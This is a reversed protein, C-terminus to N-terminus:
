AKGFPDPQLGALVGGDVPVAAGHVYSAGEGLLFAAVAAVEAADGDRGLPVPMERTQDGMGPTAYVGELMPTSMNGPVVVNLRVGAAGWEAARSRTAVVIARKVTSYAQTGTGSKAIALAEPEHDALCADLMPPVISGDFYGGISAITLAAPAHGRALAPRLADVLRMSGFYNVAVVTEPAAYPGVGAAVVLGDLHGRGRDLVAEIARKRGAADGLDADVDSGRLDIGIADQGAARLQALLAAGLGSAAGTVAVFRARETM